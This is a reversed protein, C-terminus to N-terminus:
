KTLCYCLVILGVVQAIINILVLYSIAKLENVVPSFDLDM